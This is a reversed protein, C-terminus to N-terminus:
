GSHGPKYVMLLLIVLWLVGIAASVGAIRGAEVNVKEAAELRAIAARQDREVLGFLLGLAALFLAISAGIWFENFSYEDRVLALGLLLVLLSAAGYIRTTRQLWRLLPLDAAGGRVVRATASAAVTLPGILFIAAAIHLFLVFSM